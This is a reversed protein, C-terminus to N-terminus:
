PSQATPPQRIPEAEDGDNEGRGPAGTNGREASTLPFRVSFESGRRVESSVQVTAGLKTSFREVIYLGLGVGGHPRHDNGDVQQFMEFIRARADEPIGLGTDSVRVTFHDDGASATARVIGAPTFKLANGVLNRVIVLLMRRDTQVVVDPVDDVWVLTTTPQRPLKECEACLEAWAQRLSVAAIQAGLQGAHLRSIDLTDTIMFFLQRSALTVREMIVNREVASVGDDSLMELYGLIVNLPTRLEHSLTALFDDKARNAVEAAARAAREAETQRLLEAHLKANALALSALQAMGIAVREQTATFPARRGRYGATQIGVLDDGSLLPVFMSATIGTRAAVQMPGGPVDMEATRLQVVGLRRLGDLIPVTQAVPVEVRRLAAWDEPTNGHSAIPRWVEREADRVITHSVDCGLVETTLRCLRELVGPADVSLLM